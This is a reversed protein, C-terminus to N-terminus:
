GTPALGSPARGQRILRVATETSIVPAFIDNLRRLSEGHVEPTAGACADGVVVPMYGLDRAARAATEVCWETHYGSLILTRVGWMSLYMEVPTGAFISSFGPYILNVDEPEVVAKVEDILDANWDRQADLDGTFERLWHDCQGRDMPTGPYRHRFREWRFWFFRMGAERCAAALALTNVLSGGPERGHKWIGEGQVAGQPNLLSNQSGLNLFAAHEGLLGGMDLARWQPHLEPIM